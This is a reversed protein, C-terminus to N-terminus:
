HRHHIGARLGARRQRRPRLHSHGPRAARDEKGNFKKFSVTRVDRDSLQKWEKSNRPVPVISVSGEPDVYGEGYGSPEGENATLVSNGDPTFTIMDPLAGVKVAKILKGNTDYFAVHGPDTKPDSQIAVAVVGDHVAVSNPSGLASTDITTVKRPRSPNRVDLIDVTSTQPM